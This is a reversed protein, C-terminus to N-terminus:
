IKILERQISLTTFFRPSNRKEDQGWDLFSPEAVCNILHYIYDGIREETIGHLMRKIEDAVAWGENYSRGLVVAQVLLYSYNAEKDREKGMVLQSPIGSSLDTLVTTTEMLPQEGGYFVRGLIVNARKLENPNESGGAFLFTYRDRRGEINFSHGTIRNAIHFSPSAVSM